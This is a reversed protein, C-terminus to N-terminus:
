GLQNEQQANERQGVEPLVFAPIIREFSTAGKNFFGRSVNRISNSPTRLMVKPSAPRPLPPSLM